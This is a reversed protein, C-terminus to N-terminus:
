DTKEHFPLIKALTNHTQWDFPRLFKFFFSM